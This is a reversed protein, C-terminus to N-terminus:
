QKQLLLRYVPQGTQQVWLERESPAGLPNVHLWGASSWKSELIDPEDDVDQKGWTSGVEAEGKALQARYLAQHKVGLNSGPGERALPLPEELFTAGPVSHEPAPALADGAFSEFAHRMAVAVHLIDSQLFLKGGLQLRAAIDHVLNPQFIFRKRHKRKYQPDPMQISCLQLPGPYTALLSAFSITANTAAYHISGHPACGLRTAWENARDVLATRIELGLFNSPGQLEAKLQQQAQRHQMLLLFRGSGCGLDVILPLDPQHFITSWDPPPSIIQNEAKLPNVHQRLRTRGTGDWIERVGLEMFPSVPHDAPLSLGPPPSDPRGHWRPQQEQMQQSM